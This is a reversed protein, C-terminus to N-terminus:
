SLSKHVQLTFGNGKHTANLPKTHSGTTIDGKSLAKESSSKLHRTIM